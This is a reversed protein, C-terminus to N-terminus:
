EESVGFGDFTFNARICGSRCRRNTIIPLCNTPYLLGSYVFFFLFTLFYHDLMLWIIITFLITITTIINTLLSLM